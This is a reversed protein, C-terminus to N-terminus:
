AGGESERRLKQIRQVMAARLDQGRVAYETRSLNFIEKVRERRVVVTDDGSSHLTVIHGSLGWIKELARELRALEDLAQDFLEAM